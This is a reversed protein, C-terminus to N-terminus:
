EPLARVDRPRIASRVPVSTMRGIAVARDTAPRAGPARDRGGVAVPSQLRHAAEWALSGMAVLLLVAGLMLLPSIVRLQRYDMKMLVVLAVAGILGFFVQRYVFYNADGFELLGLAFSSSYVALVGLVVLAGVVFMLPALVQLVPTDFEM